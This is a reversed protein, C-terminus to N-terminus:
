LADSNNFRVTHGLESMVNNTMQFAHTKMNYISLLSTIM